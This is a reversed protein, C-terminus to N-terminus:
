NVPKAQIGYQLFKMEYFYGFSFLNLLSFKKSDTPHIGEISNIKYGLEEFMKVISRKTFFRLHTKDFIGANKYEFNKNKVFSLFDHFYLFNPISAVIVGKENLLTKSLELVRWPDVMHELVDNFIIVDFYSVPLVDYIEEFSGHLTKNLLDKAILFSQHDPEVGWTQLGMERLANSFNGVGCGIELSFKSNKPIFKMMERRNYQFYNEATNDTIM